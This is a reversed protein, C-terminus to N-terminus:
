IEKEALNAIRKEELIQYALKLGELNDSLVQKKQYSM